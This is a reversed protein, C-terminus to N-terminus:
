RYKQSKTLRNVTYENATEAADMKSKRFMSARLPKGESAFKDEQAAYHKIRADRGISQVGTKNLYENRGRRPNTPM